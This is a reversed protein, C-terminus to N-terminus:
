AICNGQQLLQEYQTKYYAAIRCALDYKQEMTSMDSPAFIDASQVKPENNIEPSKKRSFEVRSVPQCCYASMASTIAQIKM